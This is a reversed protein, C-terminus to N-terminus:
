VPICHVHTVIPVSRWRVRGHEDVDTSVQVTLEVPKMACAGWAVWLDNWDQESLPKAWDRYRSNSFLDLFEGLANRTLDVHFEPATATQDDDTVAM